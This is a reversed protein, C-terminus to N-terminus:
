KKLLQYLAKEINPYLFVYGAKEIKTSNVNASKLVEISMEGLIIKLLFSPVHMPIFFKGKMIKALTLTLTKNSVPNSAVANYVGNMEEHEIAHIFIKCLDEIHIWSIIQKGNGLIAAIGMQIPKRFEALAGGDASLVIGVRLKVLRKNLSEVSTISEEWLKCTTGLFETDAKSDEDFGNQLSDKTDTGYWGIASTSVVAKVHNPVEKLAKIILASSQTRSEIIEKKRKESWRKEAVSAGALHIIYDAKSIATSDITQNEINWEAYSLSTLQSNVSSLSRSLVIVEFGKDLLMKTLHKGIMGRGGTILVTPM